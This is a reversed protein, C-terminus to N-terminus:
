RAGIPVPAHYRKKPGIPWIRRSEKKKPCRNTLNAAPLRSLGLHCSASPEHRQQRKNALHFLLGM